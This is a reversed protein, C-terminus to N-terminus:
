GNSPGIRRRWSFRVPALAGEGAGNGQARADGPVLREFREGLYDHAIGERGLVGPPTEGAADSGPSLRLARGLVQRKGGAGRLSVALEHAREDDPVAVHALMEDRGNETRWLEIVPASAKKWRASYFNRADQYRFCLGLTGEKWPGVRASVAYNQWSPQGWLLSAQSSAGVIVGGPWAARDWAAPAVQLWDGGSVLWRGLRYESFDVLMAPRSAVRVDDFVTKGSGHAFLGIKGYSLGPDRVTFAPTDDIGLQAWGSGVVARLSYWQDPAYGGASEALVKEIGAKKRVFQKVPKDSDRSNWRFLFYDDPGRYCLYIGVAGQVAPRCAVNLDLDSWFWEGAVATADPEGSAVYNFANASLLPNRLSELQWTGSLETWSTPDEATRMFTDTFFVESVPQFRLDYVRAGGGKVGFGIRQGVGPPDDGAALLKGGASISWRHPRREFVFFAGGFEALSAGNRAVRRLEEGSRVRGSAVGQSSLEVFFGGDDEPVAFLMRVVGASEATVRFRLDFARVTRETLYQYQWPDQPGAVPADAREECSTLTLLLVTALALFGFRFM